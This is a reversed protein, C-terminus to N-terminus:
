EYIEKSLELMWSRLHKHLLQPHRARIERLACVQLEMSLRQLFKSAKVATGDTLNHVAMGMLAWQTALEGPITIGEPDEIVKKYTPLEKYLKTFNFFERAVGEGLLSAMLPLHDREIDVGTICKSLMEWTRPSSYPETVDPNFNYLHRPRFGMYASIRLDIGAKAAWDLWEENDLTIYWHSFRSILASSMTNVIANDSELNGAAMMVVKPHLKHQGVMKDLVLKYAASQVAHTASSFEDMLICWGKKGQPLPTSEIPFTSFPMFEAKGDKFFPLGSIDSPDMDTLRIDIFELNYEDAIQQAISSKGLGPSSHLYPVIGAKFLIPLQKKAQNLTTTIMKYEM